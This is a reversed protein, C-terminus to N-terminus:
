TRAARMTRPCADKIAELLRRRASVRFSLEQFRSRTLRRGDERNVCTEPGFRGDAPTVRHAYADQSAAEDIVTIIAAEKLSPVVITRVTM